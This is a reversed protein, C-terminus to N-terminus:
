AFVLLPKSSAAFADNTFYKGVGDNGVGPTWRFIIFPAPTDIDAVLRYHAGGTPQTAPQKPYDVGVQNNDGHASVEISITGVVGEPVGMALFGRPRGVKNLWVTTRAVSLDGGFDLEHKDM